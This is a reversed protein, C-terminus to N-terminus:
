SPGEETVTKGSWPPLARNRNHLYFWGNHWGKNLTTGKVTLYQAMRVQCLQITCGGARAPVTRKEGSPMKFTWTFVKAHFFYKWLEFNALIGLFGECLAVFVAMQM